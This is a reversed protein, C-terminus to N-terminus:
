RGCPRVAPWLRSRITGVPVGSASAIEHYNVRTLGILLVATRQEESLSTIARELDRLELREIQQPACTLAPACDAWEVMIGERTARRVQSFYQNHLIVVLWATLDTGARWLHVKALARAVCEQVLDDAAVADHTPSRAYRRLNPLHAEIDRHLVPKAAGPDEDFTANDGPVSAVTTERGSM